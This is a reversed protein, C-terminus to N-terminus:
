VDDPAPQRLPRRRGGSVDEQGAARRHQSGQDPRHLLDHDRGRRRDVQGPEVMLRPKPIGAEAVAVIVAESVIKAFQEIRRRITSRWTACAWRRRGHGAREICPTRDRRRDAQHLEVMVPAAEVYPRRTSFSAASTATCGRAPEAGAPEIAKKVAEMAAGNKINFGFKSDEQGTSILRHTHPDVGPNCRLM